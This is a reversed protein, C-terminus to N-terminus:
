RQEDPSLLIAKLGALM